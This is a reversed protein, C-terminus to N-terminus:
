SASIMDRQWFGSGFRNHASAQSAFSKPTASAVALALAALLVIVALSAFQIHSSKGLRNVITKM